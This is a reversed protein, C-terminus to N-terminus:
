LRDLHDFTGTGMYSYDFGSPRSFPGDGHDVLTIRTYEVVLGDTPASLRAYMRPQGFIKNLNREEESFWIQFKKKNETM